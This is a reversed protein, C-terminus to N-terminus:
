SKARPLTAVFAKADGEMEFNMERKEGSAPDTWELEVLPPQRVLRMLGKKPPRVEFTTIHEAPIEITENQTRSSGKGGSFILSLWNESEFTQFFLTKSTTYFLGWIPVKSTERVVRGLTKGIIAEGIEEERTRWFEDASTEEKKGFLM